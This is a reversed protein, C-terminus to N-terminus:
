IASDKFSSFSSHREPAVFFLFSMEPLHYHPLNQDNRKLPFLKSFFFIAFWFIQVTAQFSPNTSCHLSMSTGVASLEVIEQPAIKATATISCLSHTVHVFSGLSWTQQTEVWMIWCEEHKLNMLQFTDCLFHLCNKSKMLIYKRINSCHM